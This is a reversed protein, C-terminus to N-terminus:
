LQQQNNLVQNLNTQIQQISVQMEGITGGLQPVKQGTM